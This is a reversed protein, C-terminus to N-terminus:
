FRRGGRGNGKRGRAGWGALPRGMPLRGFRDKIDMRAGKEVLLRVVRGDGVEGAVHLATRGELDMVDVHVRESGAVAMVHWGGSGKRGKEDLLDRVLELHGFRVALHLLPVGDDDRYGRDGENELLLWVVMANNTRAYM